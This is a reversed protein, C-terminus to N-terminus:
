LAMRGLCIYHVTLKPASLLYSRMFVSIAKSEPYPNCYQPYLYVDSSCLYSVSDIKTRVKMSYLKACEQFNRLIELDSIEAMQSSSYVTFSEMREAWRESELTQNSQYGPGRGLRHGARSVGHIFGALLSQQPIRRHGRNAM